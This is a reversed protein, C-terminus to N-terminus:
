RPMSSIRSVQIQVTGDSLDQNNVLFAGSTVYDNEIYLQTILSRLCVLDSYTATRLKFPQIISDIESELVTNGNVQIDRILFREGTSAPCNSFKPLTPTQLNPEPQVRPTEPPLSRDNQPLTQELLDETNPPLDVQAVSNLPFSAITALGSTPIILWKYTSYM